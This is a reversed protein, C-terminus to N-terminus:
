VLKIEKGFVRQLSMRLIEYFKEEYQEKYFMSPLELTLVDDQYSVAKACKFWTDFKEDGINDHIIKLCGNWLEQFNENM